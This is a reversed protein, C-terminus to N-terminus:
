CDYDVTNLSPEGLFATSLLTPEAVSQLVATDVNISTQQKQNQQNCEELAQSIKSILDLLKQPDKEKSALECLTRWDDSRSIDNM